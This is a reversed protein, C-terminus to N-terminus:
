QVYMYVSHMVMHCVSQSFQYVRFGLLFESRFEQFEWSSYILIVIRCLNFKIQFPKTSDTEVRFQKGERLQGIADLCGVGLAYVLKM